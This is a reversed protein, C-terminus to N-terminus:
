RLHVAHSFYGLDVPQTTITQVSFLGDKYFTRGTLVADRATTYIGIVEEHRMLAHRNEYKRLSPLLRKFAHYNKEIEELRAANDLVEKNGM